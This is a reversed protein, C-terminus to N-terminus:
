RSVATLEYYDANPPVVGSTSKLIAFTGQVRFSGAGKPGNAMRAPVGDPIRFLIWVPPSAVSDAPTKWYEKFTQTGTALIFYEGRGTSGCRSHDEVSHEDECEADLTVNKGSNAMLLNSLERAYDVNALDGRFTIPSANSSSASPLVAETKPKFVAILGTIAVIITAIAGLLVPVYHKDKDKAPENM